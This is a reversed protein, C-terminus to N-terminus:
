ADRERNGSIQSARGADSAAARNWLQARPPADIFFSQRFEEFETLAKSTQGGIIAAVFKCM